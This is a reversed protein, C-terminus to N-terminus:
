EASQGHKPIKNIQRLLAVNEPFTAPDFVVDDATDVLKLEDESLESSALKPHMAEDPRDGNPWGGKM